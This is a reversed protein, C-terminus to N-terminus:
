DEAVVVGGALLTGSVAPLGGGAFTMSGSPLPVFADTEMSTGGIAISTDFTGHMPAVGNWISHATPASNNIIDRMLPNISFSLLDSTTDDAIAQLSILDNTAASSGTVTEGWPDSYYAWAKAGDPFSVKVVDHDASVVMDVQPFEFQFVQPKEGPLVDAARQTMTLLLSTHVVDGTATPRNNAQPRFGFSMVPSFDDRTTPGLGTASQYQALTFATDSFLVQSAVLKLLTGAGSATNNGSDSTNTNTSTNTTTNVGSNSGQANVGAASSLTPTDSGGGGCAALSLVTLVAGANRIGKRVADRIEVVNAGEQTTLMAM